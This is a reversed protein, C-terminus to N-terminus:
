LLAALEKYGKGTPHIQDKSMEARNVDITRDSYMTAVTLVTDRHPYRIPVIWIVHQSTIKKRFNILSELSSPTDNVGMSVIVYNSTFDIGKYKEVYAKSTIGVKTYANCSPKYHALGQAISDGLILCEFM